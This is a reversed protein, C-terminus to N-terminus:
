FYMCAFMLFFLSTWHQCFFKLVSIEHSRGGSFYINVCVHKLIFFLSILTKGTKYPMPLFIDRKDKYLCPCLCFCLCSCLYFLSLIFIEVQKRQHPFWFAGRPKTNSRQWQWLQPERREDKWHRRKLGTPSSTTINFVSKSTTNTIIFIPMNIIIFILVMKNWKWWPRRKLSTIFSAYNAMLTYPIENTKMNRTFPKLLLPKVVEVELSSSQLIHLKNGIWILAKM